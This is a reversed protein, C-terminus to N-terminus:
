NKPMKRLVTNVQEIAVKPEVLKCIEYVFQPKSSEFGQPGNQKGPFLKAHRAIQEGTLEETLNVAAQVLAVLPVEIPPRGKSSKEAMNNLVEFIARLTQTFEEISRNIEGMKRKHIKRMAEQLVLRRFKNYSLTHNNLKQASHIKDEDDQLSKLESFTTFDNLGGINSLLESAHQSKTRANEIYFKEKSREYQHYIASLREQFDPNISKSSKLLEKNLIDVQILSDHYEEKFDFLTDEFKYLGNPKWEDLNGHEGEKWEGFERITGYVTKNQLSKFKKM